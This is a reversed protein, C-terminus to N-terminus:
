RALSDLENVELVLHVGVYGDSELDIGDSIEQLLEVSAVLCNADTVDHM